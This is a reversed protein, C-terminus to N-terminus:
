IKIFGRAIRECVANINTVRLAKVIKNGYRANLSVFTFYSNTALGVQRYAPFFKFNDKGSRNGGESLLKPRAPGVRSFSRRTFLALRAPFLPPHGKGL